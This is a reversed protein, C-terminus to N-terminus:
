KKLLYEKIYDESYIVLLEDTGKIKYYQWNDKLVDLGLEYININKLDKVTVEGLIEKPTGKSKPYPMVTFGKDVVFNLYQLQQPNEKQIKKLEAVSYKQELRKDIKQEQAMAGATSLFVFVGIFFQKIM